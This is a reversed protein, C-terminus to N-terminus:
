SQFRIRDAITSQYVTCNTDGASSHYLTQGINCRMVKTNSSNSTVTSTTNCEQMTWSSSNFTATKFSSSYAYVKSGSVSLTTGGTIGNIDELFVDPCNTITLTKNNSSGINFKALSFSGSIASLTINGILNVVVGAEPRLDLNKNLTLDENYSGSKIIVMDGATANTFVAQISEGPLM